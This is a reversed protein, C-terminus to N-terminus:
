CSFGPNRLGMGATRDSRGLLKKYYRGGVSQINIAKSQLSHSKTFEFKLNPLLIM